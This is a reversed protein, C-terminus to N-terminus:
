KYFIELFNKLVMSQMVTKMYIIALLLYFSLIFDVRKMFPSDKEEKPCGTIKKDFVSYHFAFPIEIKLRLISM